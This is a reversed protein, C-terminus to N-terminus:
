VTQTRLLQNLTAQNLKVQACELRVSITSAATFAADMSIGLVVNDRVIVYPVDESPKCFVSGQFGSLGPSYYDEGYVLLSNTNEMVGAAFAFGSGMANDGTGAGAILAVRMVGTEAVGVPTNSTQSVDMHVKYIALGTGQQRGSGIPDIYASLDLQASADGTGAATAEVSTDLYFVDKLNYTM